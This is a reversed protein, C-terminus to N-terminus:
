SVESVLVLSPHFTMGLRKMLALPLIICVTVIIILYNGNLFWDSHIGCVCVRRLRPCAQLRVGSVDTESLAPRRDWSPRSSWRCSRSSSSCTAPCPQLHSSLHATHPRAVAEPRRARVESTTCRSSSLPSFRGRTDLPGSAWSSTPGFGQSVCIHSPTPAASGPMSCRCRM